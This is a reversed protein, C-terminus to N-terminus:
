RQWDMIRLFQSRAAASHRAGPHPTPPTSTAM